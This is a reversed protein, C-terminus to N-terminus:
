PHEHFGQLGNLGQIDMSDRFGHTNVSVVCGHLGHCRLPDNCCQLSHLAHIWLIWLYGHLGHLGHISMSARSALSAKSDICDMFGHTDMSNTCIWPLWSNSFDISDLSIDEKSTMTKVHTHGRAHTIENRLINNESDLTMDPFPSPGMCPYAM